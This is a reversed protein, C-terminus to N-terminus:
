AVKGAGGAAEGNTEGEPSGPVGAILNKMERIEELPRGTMALSLLSLQFRLEDITATDVGTGICALLWM